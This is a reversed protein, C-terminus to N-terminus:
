RQRGRGLSVYKESEIWWEAMYIIKHNEYKEREKQVDAKELRDCQCAMWTGHAMLRVTRPGDSTLAWWFLHTRDLMWCNHYLFRVTHLGSASLSCLVMACFHQLLNCIPWFHCPGALPLWMLLECTTAWLSASPSPSSSLWVIGLIKTSLFLDHLVMCGRPVVSCVYVTCVSAISVVDITQWGSHSIRMM